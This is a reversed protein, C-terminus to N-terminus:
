KEKILKFEKLKNIVVDETVYGRICGVIKGSKTIVTMPKPFGKLFTTSKGDLTCEGPIELDLNMINDWEETDYNERDFYYIDINKEQAIKNIVPLYLNCYSCSEYGFVSITYKKSNVMNIYDSAKPLVKYAIESPPIKNYLYKEILEQYRETSLNDEMIGIPEENNFIIFAPLKKIDLKYASLYSNIEDITSKTSFLTLRYEKKFTKMLDKVNDTVNGIYLISSDVKSIETNLNVFEITKIKITNLRLILLIIILVIITLCVIFVNKKNEM